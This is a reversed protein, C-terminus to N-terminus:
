RKKRTMVYVGALVLVGAGVIIYPTYDPQGGTGCTGDPQAAKGEPCGCVQANAILNGDMKCYTPKSASCSGLTTGDSCKTTPKPCDQPCNEYSEGTECKGNGCSTPPTTSVCQCAVADAIYNTPCDSNKLICVRECTGDPNNRVIWNGSAVLSCTPLYVVIGIMESFINNNLANEARITCTTQGSNASGSISIPVNVSLTQGADFYIPASSSLPSAPPQCDKAFVRISGATGNNKVSATFFGNLNSQISPKSVSLIIPQTMPIRIGLWTARVYMKFNPYYIPHSSYDISVKNMSPIYEATTWAPNIQTSWIQSSLQNQASVANDLDAKTNSIASLKTQWEQASLERVNQGAVSSSPVIRKAGDSARMLLAQDTGAPCISGSTGFQTFQVAVDNDTYSYMNSGMYFKKSQGLGNQISFSSSWDTGDPSQPSMLYIDGYNSAVIKFCQRGIGAIGGYACSLPIGGMNRCATEYNSQLLVGPFFCDGGNATASGGLITPFILPNVAQSQYRPVRNNTTAKTVDYLCHEYEMKFTINLNGTSSYDSPLTNKYQDQSGFITEGNGNIVITAMWTKDNFTPDASSIAVQQLSLVSGGTLSYLGGRLYFVGLALVAIVAFIGILTTQQKETLRM